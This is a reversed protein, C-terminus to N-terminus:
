MVTVKDVISYRSGDGGTVYYQGCLWAHAVMRGEDCGCGLYM